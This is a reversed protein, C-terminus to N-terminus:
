SEYCRIWHREGAYTVTGDYTAGKRKARIVALEENAQMDTLVVRLEDDDLWWQPAAVAITESDVQLRQSFLASGAVHGFGLTIVIAPAAATSCRVGGTAHAPSAIMVLTSLAIAFPSLLLNRM